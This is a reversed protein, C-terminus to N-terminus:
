LRNLACQRKVFDNYTNRLNDSTQKFEKGVGSLLSSVRETYPSTATETKQSFSYLIFLGYGGLILLVLGYGVYENMYGSWVLGLIIFCIIVLIIFFRLNRILEDQKDAREQNLIIMQDSRRIADIKMDKEDVLGRLMGMKAKIHEGGMDLTARAGTLLADDESLQQQTNLLLSDLEGSQEILSKNLSARKLTDKFQPHIASIGNSNEAYLNWPSMERNNNSEM